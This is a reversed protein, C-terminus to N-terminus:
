YCSYQVKNKTKHFRFGEDLYCPLQVLNFLVLSRPFDYDRSIRILESQFFFFFFPFHFCSRHSCFSHGLCRSPFSLRGHFAISIDFAHPMWRERSLELELLTIQSDPIRIGLSCPVLTLSSCSSCITRRLSSHVSVSLNSQM